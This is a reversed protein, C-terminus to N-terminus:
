RAKQKRELTIFAYGYPNNDDAKHEERQTELWENEDYEPFFADGDFNGGILTIYIKDALPLFERYVSEGGIVMIEDTGDAEEMAQQVSSVITCGDAQINSRTLVINKRNELPKGISEFTRRGMIVPKSKTLAVFRKMDAKMKWPLKNDVGIVRNKGMAAIISITM